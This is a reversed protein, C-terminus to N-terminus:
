NHLSDVGTRSAPTNYLCARVIWSWHVCSTILSAFVYWKGYRDMAEVKMGVELEDMSKILPGGSAEMEVADCWELYM